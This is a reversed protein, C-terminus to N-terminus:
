FAVLTGDGAIMGGGCIATLTDLDGDDVTYTTQWGSNSYDHQIGRIFIDKIIRAGGGQPTLKITIRQGLDLSLVIPWLNTPDRQPRVILKEFRVTPTNYKHVVHNVYSQALTSSALQFNQSWSVKRWPKSQSTLDQAHRKSGFSDFQLSADNAVRSKDYGVTVDSFPLEGGGGDGFTAVSSVYATHLLLRDLFVIGGATDIFGAGWEAAVADSIMSWAPNSSLGDGVFPVRATGDGLDTGGTFGAATVVAAIRAGTLERPFITKVQADALEAVADEVQLSTIQDAHLNPYLQPWQSTRGAFLPYDIANWTAVITIPVGPVVDPYYPGTTFTPDFRRDKNAFDATFSGADAILSTLAFTHSGRTLSFHDRLYPTINQNGAAFGATVTLTPLNTM